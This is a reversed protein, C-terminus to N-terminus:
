AQKQESKLLRERAGKIGSSNWVGRVHLVFLPWCCVFSTAAPPQAASLSRTSLTKFAPWCTSSILSIISSNESYRCFLACLRTPCLLCATRNSSYSSSTWTMDDSLWSYIKPGHLKIFSPSWINRTKRKNDKEKTKVLIQTNRSVGASPSFAKHKTKQRAASSFTIEEENNTSFVRFVFLSNEKERGRKWRFWVILAATVLVLLGQRQRNNHKRWLIM